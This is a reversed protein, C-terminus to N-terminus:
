SRWVVRPHLDRGGKEVDGEGGRVCTEGAGRTQNDEQAGGQGFMRNDIGTGSRHLKQNGRAKM